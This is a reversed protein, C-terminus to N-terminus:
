RRFIRSTSAPARFPPAQSAGAAPACKGRIMGSLDRLMAYKELFEVMLERSIAQYRDSISVPGFLTRYRPHRAVYAGIGKWLLLLPAFGKQYEQRVFSRGLELAPGIRDLFEQGYHFLTATYLGRAAAFSRHGGASVRRRSGAAAREM